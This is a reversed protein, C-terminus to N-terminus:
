LADIPQVISVQRNHASDLDRKFDQYLRNIGGEQEMKEAISQAYKQRKSTSWSDREVLKASDCYGEGQLYDVVWENLHFRWHEFIHATEANQKCFKGLKFVETAPPLATEHHTRGEDEDDSDQELSEKNYVNGEFQVEYTAPHKSRNCADCKDPLDGTIRSQSFIPRAKLGRIFKPTWVSSVFKSGGMGTVFDSVKNFAIQYTEHDSAFGPNVKKQVMWEIVFRFLEKNKMKQMRFKIPLEAVEDEEDDEIIFDEDPEVFAEEEVDEEDEDSDTDDLVSRVGSRRQTRRRKLANLAEKRKNKARSLQIM